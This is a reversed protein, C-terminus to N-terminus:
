LTYNKQTENARSCFRRLLADEDTVNRSGRPAFHFFVLRASANHISLPNRFHWQSSGSFLLTDGERHTFEHFVRPRTPVLGHIPWSEVDSVYLPWQINSMLLHDLTYKAEPHDMHVGMTGNSTYTTLFNYTMEVPEGVELSVRDVLGRQIRTFLEDDHIVHRGFEELEHPATRHGTKFLYDARRVMYEHTPSDFLSVMRARFGPPTRLINTAEVVEDVMHPCRTGIAHFTSLFGSDYWSFHGTM